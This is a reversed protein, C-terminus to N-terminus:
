DDDEDSNDGNPLSVSGAPQAQQSLPRQPAFSESPNNALMKRMESVVRQLERLDGDLRSLNSELEAAEAGVSVSRLVSDVNAVTVRTMRQLADVVMDPTYHQMKSEDEAAASTAVVTPQQLADPPPLPKTVTPKSDSLQHQLDRLMQAAVLQGVQRRYERELKIDEVLKAAPEPLSIGWDERRRTNLMAVVQAEYWSVSRIEKAEKLFHRILPGEESEVNEIWKLAIRSLRICAALYEALPADKPNLERMLEEIEPLSNRLTKASAMM